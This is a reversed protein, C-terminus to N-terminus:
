DLSRLLEAVGEPQELLSLHGAGEMVEVDTNLLRRAPGHLRAPSYFADDSGTAVLVPTDEWPRLCEMPLPGPALSTRCNRGVLTMWPAFPHVGETRHAPGSMHNLLRTSKDDRPNVMWPLSVRMLEPTMAASTLGAPGVLAVCRALDSPKAALVVAAGLSHGLLIAPRGTVLPLIENLWSGYAHARAARPRVGCSLGPQGPLDVLIVPRDRALVRATDVCTASNFNTGSLVVVPTRDGGPASFARTPGLQSDLEPLARLEPWSALREECWARVERAGAESRYIRAGQLTTDPM